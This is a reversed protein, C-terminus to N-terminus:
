YWLDESSFDQSEITGDNSSMFINNMVEINECKVNPAVYARKEKLTLDKM